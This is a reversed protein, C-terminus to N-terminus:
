IAARSEPEEEMPVPPMLASATLATAGCAALLLFVVTFSLYSLLWGVVLAALAAPLTCLHFIAIYRPRDEDNCLEFLYNTSGMWMAGMASGGSLFVLAFLYPLARALPPAPGAAALLAPPLAVALLPVATVLVGGGRLVARPGRSDNLYGWFISAVAGGVTMAWIYVGAIDDRVGLEQKAYVMYFPMTFSVAFGLLSVTVLSRFARDRLMPLTSVLLQGVSQPQDLVPRIPERVLWCGIVSLALFVAMATFLLTYDRPFGPGAPGLLWRVAFGVAFAFMATTFQMTGFFRGRLRSPISKAIIDNWSIGLTGNGFSISAYAIVVFWIVLSTNGLGKLWLYAVFAFFPLRGLLVPWRLFPLKNPRHGLVAAMFIQPAKWGLQQVVTILGIVLTSPTLRGIFLPLVASPDVWALGSMFFTSEGVIIAFNWRTHETSEDQRSPFTTAM